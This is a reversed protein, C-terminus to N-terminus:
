GKHMRISIKTKNMENKYGNLATLAFLELTLCLTAEVYRVSWQITGIKEVTSAAFINLFLHM